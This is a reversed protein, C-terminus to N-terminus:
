PYDRKSYSHTKADWDHREGNIVCTSRYKKAKRSDRTQRRYYHCLEQQALLAKLFNDIVKQQRQRVQIRDQPHKADLYCYLCLLTTLLPKGQQQAYRHWHEFHQRYNPPIRTTTSQSKRLTPDQRWTELLTCLNNTYALIAPNSEEYYIEQCKKFEHDLEERLLFISLEVIDRCISLVNKLQQINALFADANQQIAALNALKDLIPSPHNLFLEYQLDELITYLSSKVQVGSEALKFYALENIKEQNEWPYHPIKGSKEHIEWLQYIAEQDALIEILHQEQSPNVCHYKQHHYYSRLNALGLIIAQRRSLKSYQTLIKKNNQNKLSNILRFGDIKMIAKNDEPSTEQKTLLKIEAASLM